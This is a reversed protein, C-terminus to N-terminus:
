ELAFGFAGFVHWFLPPGPIRTGAASAALFTTATYGLASILFYFLTGVNFCARPSAKARAPVEIATLLASLVVVALVAEFPAILNGLDGAM